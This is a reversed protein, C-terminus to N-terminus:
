REDKAQPARTNQAAATSRRQRKPIGEVSLKPWTSEHVENSASSPDHARTSRTQRQAQAMRKRLGREVSLKPWTSEPATSGPM